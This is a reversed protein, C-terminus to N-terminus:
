FNDEHIISKTIDHILDDIRYDAMYCNISEALVVNEEYMTNWISVNTQEAGKVLCGEVCTGFLSFMIDVIENMAEKNEHQFCLMRNIERAHKLVFGTQNIAQDIFVWQGDEVRRHHFDFEIFEGDFIIEMFVNNEFALYAQLKFPENFYRTEIVNKFDTLRHRESQPMGIINFGRYEFQANEMYTNFEKINMEMEESVHLFTNNYEENYKTSFAFNLDADHITDYVATTHILRRLMFSLINHMRNASTLDNYFVKLSHIINCLMEVVSEKEKTRIRCSLLQYLWKSSSALKTAPKLPLVDFYKILIEQPVNHIVDAM